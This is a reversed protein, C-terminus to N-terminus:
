LDLFNKVGEGTELNVNSNRNMFSNFKQKFTDNMKVDGRKTADLFVNLYEEYAKEKFDKSEPNYKKNIREQVKARQENSLVDNIFSDITEIGEPTFLGDKGKFAKRTLFHSLEHSAASVAGTELSRDRNVLIVDKFTKGGIKAEPLYVADSENSFGNEEAIEIYKAADLERFDAGLEPAESAVFDVDTQYEGKEIERGEKLLEIRQNQLDNITENLEKLQDKYILDLAPNDKTKAKIEAIQRTANRQDLYKGIFIDKKAQIQKSDGKFLSNAQIVMESYEGLSGQIQNFEPSNKSIGLNDAVVQNMAEVPSRFNYGGKGDSVPTDSFKSIEKLEKVNLEQGSAIKKGIIDLKAQTTKFNNTQQEIVKKAEVINLQTNLTTAALKFKEMQKKVEPSNMQISNMKNVGLEKMKADLAEAIEKPSSFEKVGLTKSAAVTRPSRSDLALVRNRVEKVVNGRMGLMTFGVLDGTLADIDKIEKMAQHFAKEDGTAWYSAAANIGQASKGIATATVGGVVMKGSANFGIGMRTRTFESFYPLYKMAAYKQMGASVSNGAGFIVADTLPLKEGNWLAVGMENAAAITVIEKSIGNMLNLGKKVVQSKGMGAGRFYANIRNLAPKVGYMKNNMKIGPKKAIAISMLLPTINGVVDSGLELASSNNIDKDLIDQDVKLGTSEMVNAYYEAVKYPQADVGPVSGFYTDIGTIGKQFSSTFRGAISNGEEITMLNSNLKIARDLSLLEMLKDNHLQALPHKSMIKTINKGIYDGKYGAFSAQNTAKDTLEDGSLWNLFDNFIGKNGDIVEKANESINKDVALLEFFVNNRANLLVEATPAKEQLELTRQNVEEAEGETLNLDGEKIPAIPEEVSVGILNGNKDYARDGANARLRLLNEKDIKGTEKYLDYIDKEAKTVYGQDFRKIKNDIYKQASPTLYGEAYFTKLDKGDQDYLDFNSLSEINLEVFDSEPAKLKSRLKAGEMKIREDRIPTLFTEPDISKDNGFIDKQQTDYITTVLGASGAQVSHSKFRGPYYKNLESVGEGMFDVEYGGIYTKDEGESKRKESEVIVKYLEPNDPTYKFDEKVETEFNAEDGETLNIDLKTNVGETVDVLPAGKYAPTPEDEKPKNNEKWETYAVKERDMMPLKEYYVEGDPHPIFPPNSDTESDSSGPESFLETAAEKETTAPAADEVVVEEKKESVEETKLQAGVGSIYEEIKMESATAAEQVESLSIEEGDIIYVEEM